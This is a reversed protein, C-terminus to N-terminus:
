AHNCGAGHKHELRALTNLLAVAALIRAITYKRM